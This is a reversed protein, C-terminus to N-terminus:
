YPMVNSPGYNVNGQTDLFNDQLKALGRAIKTFFSQQLRCPIIRSVFEISYNVRPPSISKLGLAIAAEDM